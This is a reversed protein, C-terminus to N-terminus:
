RSRTQKLIIKEQPIINVTEVKIIQPTFIVEKTMMERRIGMIKHRGIDKFKEGLVKRIARCGKKVEPYENLMTQIMLIRKVNELAKEENTKIHNHEMEPYPDFCTLNKLYVLHKCGRVICRHIPGYATTRLRHYTQKTEPLYLLGSRATKILIIYKTITMKVRRIDSSFYNTKYKLNTEVM